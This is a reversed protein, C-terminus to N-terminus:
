HKHEAAPSGGAPPAPMVQVAVKVEGAKEFKLVLPHSAGTKLPAKLEMFMIHLGGPRLEVTKGAPVDISDIQRMRMVDGDMSMSHLEVRGAFDARASLLKDAQPGGVIRLFGGGAAQGQVTPRAWAAQVQIGTQTATQTATQAQAGLSASALATAIFFPRLTM